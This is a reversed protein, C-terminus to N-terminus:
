CYIGHVLKRCYADVSLFLSKNCAAQYANRRDPDNWLLYIKERLEDTDGSAFLEGNVGVRILEPTGGTDSAIIPTGLSLSEMVTFPCNEYWESPFVTFEAGRIIDTLAKGALFGKNTINDLENVEHEMPGAGAFVFPIEPLMHVANLLTDLGKEQAYRGFYLVYSNEGVDSFLEDVNMEDDLEVFNHLVITKKRLLKNNDLVKKMFHSPCIIADILRYTKLFRYIVAEISGLLSKMLSGHICKYKVCNFASGDICRTCRERTIYQQMLHNPCLLQSDHATYVTKIKRGNKKSFDRIEYLISPTLQFNFNNLHIVDPQFDSLVARLKKRAERSYIIRFPYTLRKLGTVHFDMGATYSNARNGVIRQPHDMGFYQVEHGLKELSKGLGFIYTESGGNPHLFKNIILIKM